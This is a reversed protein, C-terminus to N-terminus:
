NPHPKPDPTLKIDSGGGGCGALLLVVCIGSVSKVLMVIESLVYCVIRVAYHLGSTMVCFNNDPVVIPQNM